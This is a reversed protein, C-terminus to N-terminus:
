AQRLHQQVAAFEVARADERAFGDCQHRAIVQWWVDPEARARAGLELLRRRRGFEPLTEAETEAHALLRPAVRPRPRDAVEVPRAHVAGIEPDIWLLLEDAHQHQARGVQAPMITRQHPLEHILRQIVSHQIAAENSGCNRVLTVLSNLSLRASNRITSTCSLSITKRM